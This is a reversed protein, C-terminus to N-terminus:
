KKYKINNSSFNSKKKFDGEYTKGKSYTNFNNKIIINTSYFYIHKIFKTVIFKQIPYFLLLLGLFDTLFGPLILLIGSILLAINQIIENTPNKGNTLKYRILLLNKIGKSKVLSVGLSSTLIGLILTSLIGINETLKIFIISEVYILLCLLIFSIWRM